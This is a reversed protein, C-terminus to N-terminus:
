SIKLNHFREFSRLRKEFRELVSRQFHRPHHKSVYRRSKLAVEFDQTDMGKFKKQWFRMTLQQWFRDLLGAGLASMGLELLKQRFAKERYLLLPKGSYNPYFDRVWNNAHYFRQVLEADGCVPILTTMETATFRNQEEIQLHDTDIFYNICFFKHSGRLFIKKYLALLSRSLWLRGPTTIIFFDVDGDPAVVGKSISGSFFVAEVFPFKHILGANKLGRAIMYDARFMGKKRSAVKAEVESLAYYDECEFLLEQLILKNLLSQVSSTDKCSSFRLVEELKLPFNFIDFYLFTHLLQKEEDSVQLSEGADILASKSVIPM